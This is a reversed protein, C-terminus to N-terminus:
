PPRPRSARPMPWSGGSGPSCAASSPRTASSRARGPPRRRHGPRDGPRAPAARDPAAQRDAAALAELGIELGPAIAGGVFAGDAPWRMSPRPRAWTSSWPRRLRVAPRRGPRQGAPRRRGRRTPRGPDAPARPRGDRPGARCTAGTARDAELGRDPRAGGLRLRDRRDRAPRATDLGLLGELLLELEDPTAARNTAARRTAVLLGNQFLGTTINSNGIDLALLMARHYAARRGVPGSGRLVIRGMTGRGM